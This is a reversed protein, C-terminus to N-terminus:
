SSRFRWNMILSFVCHNLVHNWPFIGNVNLSINNQDPHKNLPKFNPSSFAQLTLFIGEKYWVQDEQDMPLHDISILRRDGIRNGCNNFQINNPPGHHRWWISVNEANSARQAPFESTEPSNGVCLGTVRLWHKRQDPRLLHNLICCELRRHNSVGNRENHRWQLTHRLQVSQLCSHKRLSSWWCHENDRSTFEPVVVSNAELKPVCRSIYFLMVQSFHGCWLYNLFHLLPM